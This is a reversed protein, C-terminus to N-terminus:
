DRLSRRTLSMFLQELDAHGFHARSVVLGAAQVAAIVEAFDHRSTLTLRVGAGQQVVSGFPSLLTHLRDAAGGEVALQLQTSGAGLLDGLAGQKLVKGHDLIVVRNAIAEVEEMYHSTYIM